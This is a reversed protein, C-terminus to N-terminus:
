REEQEPGNTRGDIAPSIRWTFEFPLAVEAAIRISTSDRRSGYRPSVGAEVLSVREGVGPPVLRMWRAGALLVHGSDPDVSASIGPALPVTADVRVRGTGDIRDTIAVGGDDEIRVTRTHIAQQPLRLWGDHFGEWEPQDADPAFRTCRPWAVQRLQFLNREVIPNIQQGDLAVTSHVETSRLLNRAAPDATYVFTGPDVVVPVGDFCYEFSLADNHAHGGTGGQGVNGCRIAVWAPDRDLIWVGGEPLARSGSERVNGEQAARTWADLGANWAVEPSPLGRDPAPTGLLGCALWTLADHSAPRSEDLPLIRASDNDGFLPVEGDPRRIALSAQAMAVLRRRYGDSMPRGSWTSVIWGVLFMELALGHYATSAEFNLGDDHVQKVIEVELARRAEEGWRDVRSDGELAWAIVFQGLRDALYHNGRVLPSGELNNSVHGIHIRLSEAVRSDLDASGRMGAPITGLAWIWNIARISVEMANVWNIGRGPPNSDLWSAIQAEAEAAYRRDDFLRAARALALIQHSRSLEWPMKADSSDDPRTVVVDLYFRDADWLDGTKPDSHWDIPDGIAAGGAALLDTTHSMAADAAERLPGSSMAVLRSDSEPGPLEVPIPRLTPVTTGAVVALYDARLRAHRRRKTIRNVGMALATMPHPGIRILSSAIRGRTRPPISAPPPGDPAVVASAADSGSSSGSGTRGPGLRVSHEDALTRRYLWVYAILNCLLAGFSAWAAGQAGFPPILGFNLVINSGALIMGQTMQERGRGHSVLFINLPSSLGRVAQAMALPLSLLVMPRYADPLFLAVVLVTAAFTAPIVAFALMGSRVVMSRQLRDAHALRAYRSASFAIAPLGFASAVAATLTYNAVAASSAFAGLMLVDLNYTGISMIRGLYTRFGWERSSRVIAGVAPFPRRRSPALWRVLLLAAIWNGGAVAFLMPLAGTDPGSAILVVALVFAQGFCSAVAAAGLRERGRSIMMGIYATFPWVGAVPALMRLSHGIPQEFISDAFFSIAFVLLMFLLGVPVYVLLGIAVVGGRQNERTRAVFRSVPDFLGLDVLLASFQLVSLTLAFSAFSDISIRKALVFKAVGVLATALLSGLTYLTAQRAPGPTRLTAVISAVRGGISGSAMGKSVASNM